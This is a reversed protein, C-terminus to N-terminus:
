DFDIQVGELRGAAIDALIFGRANAARKRALLEKYARVRSADPFKEALWSACASMSEFRTREGEFTVEVGAKGTRSPAKRRFPEPAGSCSCFVGGPCTPQHVFPGKAVRAGSRTMRAVLADLDDPQVTPAQNARFADSLGRLLSIVAERAPTEPDITLTVPQTRVIATRAM